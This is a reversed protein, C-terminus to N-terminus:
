KRPKAKKTTSRKPRGGRGRGSPKTGKSGGPLVRFPHERSSGRHVRVDPYPDTFPALAPSPSPRERQASAPEGKAPREPARGTRAAGDLLVTHTWDRRRLEAETLPRWHVANPAMALWSGRKADRTDCRASHPARPRSGPPRDAARRRLLAEFPLMTRRLCYGDCVPVGRPQPPPPPPSAGLPPPRHPSPVASTSQHSSRSGHIASSSSSSCCCGGRTPSDHMTRARAHEWTCAGRSQVALNCWSMAAAPHGGRSPVALSPAGALVGSAGRAHM